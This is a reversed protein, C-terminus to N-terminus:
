RGFTFNPAWASIGGNELLPSSAEELKGYNSRYVTEFLAWLRTLRIYITFLYVPFAKATLQASADKERLDPLKDLSLHPVRYAEMILPNMYSFTGLSFYSATEEPTPTQEASKQFVNNVSWILFLLSSVLTIFSQPMVLPIIVGSITLLGFRAWELGRTDRGKGVGDGQSVLIPRLTQISYVVFAIVYLSAVHRTTTVRWYQTSAILSIFSLITM